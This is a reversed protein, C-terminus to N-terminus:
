EENTAEKKDFYDQPVKVTHITFGKLSHYKESRAKSHDYIYKGRDIFDIVLGYEKNEAATLSRMKQVTVTDAELGEANIVASLNPINLGLKGVTSIICKLSGSNLCDYLDKRIDSEIDGYVYVSNPIMERLIEGHYKKRVPIFCTKNQLTLKNVLDAIFKNRLENRVINVEYADSYETMYEQYWSYPMEYEIVVPQAIRGSEIVKKFPVTFLIPGIAAELELMSKKGPKPTGSLGIRYGTNTFEDMVKSLKKTLACHSEDLILVKTANMHKRIQNNREKTGEAVKKSFVRVLANYSTVIIDAPEFKSESFVGVKRGLFKEVENRTQVVLDKGYTIVFAPYHDIKSLMSAIIATKGSRIVASIIGYKYKVAKAVATKQFDKLTIGIVDGTGRPTIDTFYEYQVDHNAEQLLKTVRPVLGTAFSHDRRKYLNIFGDWIGAQYKPNYFYGNMRFRLKDYLYDSVEKTPYPSIFTKTPSIQLTFLM